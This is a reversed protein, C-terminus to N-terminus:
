LDSLEDLVEKRELAAPRRLPLDLIARAQIESLRYRTQLTEFAKAASEAQRITRIVADLHDLAIKLGELVHAREQAKKLEFQTRRTLAIQRHELFLSLMRKLNLVRPEGDVLAL